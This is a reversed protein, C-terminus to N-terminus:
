GEDMMTSELPWDDGILLVRFGRLLLRRGVSSPRAGVGGNGRRHFSPADNGDLIADVGVEDYPPRNFLWEIPEASAADLHGAAERLRTAVVKNEFFYDDDDDDDRQSFFKAVSDGADDNDRGHVHLELVEGINPNGREKKALL